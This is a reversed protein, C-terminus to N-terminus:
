STSSSVHLFTVFVCSFVVCFFALLDAREWYTVVLSCPVISFAYRLCVHLMNILLFSGCFFCPRPVNPLLESSPKFM